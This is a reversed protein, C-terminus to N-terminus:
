TATTAAADALEYALGWRIGRDSVIVQPARLRVVLRAFIAAGAAIVDVRQPEIGPMARREAATARALTDALEAVRAPALALGHVRDPDYRTLGLEVAALTTATGASAVLPLDAPLALPALAADIDAALAAREEATAPDHRLHRETLRVAGIPVSVESEVRSGDAVIVETSAGGVDAVAFRRGRLAPLSRVQATFALHAEREGPIVDIPAGLIAQAPATFDAGNAAKRVAETAIVAVRGVGNADLAARYERCIDLSRAIADPHLRGTADLGQGLRGFRCLDVVARLEGGPAREAVLLLLTNSGIDIVATRM